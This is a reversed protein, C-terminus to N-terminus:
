ELTPNLPYVNEIRILKRVVAEILHVDEMCRSFTGDSPSPITLGKVQGYHADIAQHHFYRDVSGATGFWCSDRTCVLWDM